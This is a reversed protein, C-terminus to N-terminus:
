ATAKAPAGAKAPDEAKKKRRNPKVPSVGFEILQENGFGFTGKLHAAARSRLEDGERVLKRRDRALEARRRRNVEAESDLSEARAIVGQLQTRMEVLHPMEALQPELNTHIIKWTSIKEGFSNKNSRM